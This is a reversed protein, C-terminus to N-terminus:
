QKVFGEHQLTLQQIAIENASASLSPLAQYESVWCEYVMYTLKIAGADDHLQITIDKRVKDSPVREYGHAPDLRRAWQHFANNTTIGHSLTITGYSTLGPTSLSTPDSSGVRYSIAETSKTLGSVHNIGAVTATDFKVLFRYNKYPDLALARTM